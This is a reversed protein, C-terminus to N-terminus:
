IQKESNQVHPIRGLLSKRSHILMFKNSKAIFKLSQKRLLSSLAIFCTGGPTTSRMKKLRKVFRRVREALFLGLIIHQTM